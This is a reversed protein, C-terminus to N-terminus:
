SWGVVASWRAAMSVRYCRPGTYVGSSCRDLPKVGQRCHRHRAQPIGSADQEPGALIVDPLSRKIGEKEVM